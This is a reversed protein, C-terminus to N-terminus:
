GGGRKLSSQISGVKRIWPQNRVAAPSMKEIAARADPVSQFLGHVLAHWTTGEREFTYISNPGQLSARRLFRQVDQADTSASMQITFLEADQLLVWNPSELGDVKDGNEVSAANTETTAEAAPEEQAAPLEADSDENSSIAAATSEEADATTEVNDPAVQEPTTNEEAEANSDTAPPTEPTTAVAPQETVTTEATESNTTESDSAAASNAVSSDTDTAASNDAVPVPPKATSTSSTESAKDGVIKSIESAASDLDSTQATESTNPEDVAADTENADSAAPNDENAVAPDESGNVVAASAANGAVVTNNATANTGAPEAQKGPVSKLPTKESITTKGVGSDPSKWLLGVGILGLALLGWLYRGVRKGSFLGSKGAGRGTNAFPTYVTNLTEASLYNIRGPLGSADNAITNIQKESLPFEDFHGAQNLRLQIYPQARSALLPDVALSSYPIQMGEHLLDPIKTEFEPEASMLVHLLVEQTNFYQISALLLNLERAPIQDVDDLLLVIINNREHSAQLGHLMEKVSNEFEAPPSLKWADLIGNFLNHTTYRDGGKVSFYQLRHGSTRTLQKLLTSKGAGSDGMLLILTEGNLIAQRIENIQSYTTEDAFLEGEASAGVFPQSRLQLQQMAYDTLLGESKGTLDLSHETAVSISDHESATAYSPQTQQPSDANDAHEVAAHSADGDAVHEAQAPTQGSQGSQAPPTGHTNQATRKELVSQDPPM